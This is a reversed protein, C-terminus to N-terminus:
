TGIGGRALLRRARGHDRRDEPCLWYLGGVSFAEQRSFREWGLPAKLNAVHIMARGGSRLMDHMLRVYAWTAHLDLHVLVDFAYVFDVAGRLEQPCPREGDFQMFRTNRHEHLVREAKRLMGASRDLRYLMEVRPAVQSALRGGGVGIEAAVSEASVNPLVFAELIEHVWASTGWEEGLVNGAVAERPTRVGALAGLRWLYPYMGWVLRNYQSNTLHASLFRDLASEAFRFGFRNMRIPEVDRGSRPRRLGLISLVFSAFFIQVGAVVVTAALLAIEGQGLSGAGNAIWDGVMILGGGLGALVFGGGAILGRELTFHRHMRELFPDRVGMFYFGYTRAILGLVIVEIGVIVLMSGAIEAHIYFQRGFITLKALVTVITLLGIVVMVAGPILFLFGPSYVLMLRLHRWGDRLPSLKSEGGRM